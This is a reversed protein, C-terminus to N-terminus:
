QFANGIRGGGASISDGGFYGGSSGATSGSNVTGRPAAAVGWAKTLQQGTANDLGLEGAWVKKHFRASLVNGDSVNMLREASTVYDMDLALKGLSLRLTTTDLRMDGIPEPTGIVEGTARDVEAFWFRMRAGQFTPDSLDAAADEDKPLFVLKGGPAEDGVTEEAEDIGEITGYDADKAQYSEGDWLIVAGDSFRLTLGPLEFKALGTVTIIRGEFAM